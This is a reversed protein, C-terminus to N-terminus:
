QLFPDEPNLGAVQFACRRLQTMAQASGDLPSAYVVVDRQTFMGLTSYAAIDDLLQRANEAGEFVAMFNYGTEGRTYHFSRTGWGDDVDNRGAASFFLKLDVDGESPLSTTTDTTFALGASHIQAQYIVALSRDAGDVKRSMLRLALCYPGNDNTATEVSWVSSEWFTEDARAPVAANMMALM